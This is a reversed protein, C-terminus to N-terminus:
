GIRIGIILLDSLVLCGFGLRSCGFGCFRGLFGASIFLLYNNKKMKEGRKERIDGANRHPPYKDFAGCFLFCGLEEHIPTFVNM